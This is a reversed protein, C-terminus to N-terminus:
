TPPTSEAIRLLAVIFVNGSSSCPPLSYNAETGLFFQEGWDVECQQYLEYAHTLAAMNRPRPVAKDCMEKAKADLLRARIFVVHLSNSPREGAERECSPGDM